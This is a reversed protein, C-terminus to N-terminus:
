NNMKIAALKKMISANQKNRVELRFGRGETYVKAQKITKIIDPPLNSKLAVETAKVGFVFACLFYNKCPILYFIPRKKDKLRLTWGYNKGSYLWEQTVPEYEKVAYTVLEDWLRKTRGLVEMLQADDPKKSKDDLISLAM